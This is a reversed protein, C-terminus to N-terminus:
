PDFLAILARKPGAGVGGSRRPKVTKLIAMVSMTRPRTQPSSVPVLNSRPSSSAPRQSRSSAPWVVRRAGGGLGDGAQADSDDDEPDSVAMM